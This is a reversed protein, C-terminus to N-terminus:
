KSSPDNVSKKKQQAEKRKYYKEVEEEVSKYRIPDMWMYIAYTDRHKKIDLRLDEITEDRAKLQTNLEEVQKRLENREEIATTIHVKLFDREGILGELQKIISTLETNKRAIIEILNIQSLYHSISDGLSM